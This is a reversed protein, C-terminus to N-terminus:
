PLLTAERIISSLLHESENRQDFLYKTKCDTLLFGILEHYDTPTMYQTASILCKSPLATSSILNAGFHVLMKILRLHIRYSGCCGLINTNEPILKPETTLLLQLINERITVVTLDHDYSDRVCTLVLNQEFTSVNHMLYEAAEYNAWEMARKLLTNQQDFRDIKTVGRKFVETFLQICIQFMHGTSNEICLSLLKHCNKVTFHKRLRYSGCEVLGKILLSFINDFNHQCCASLMCFFENPAIVACFITIQSLLEEPIPIEGLIFNLFCMIVSHVFIFEETYNEMMTITTLHRLMSIKTVYAKSSMNSCSTPSQNPRSVQLLGSFYEAAFYEAFTRHLFDFEKSSSSQIIGIQLIVSLTMRDCNTFMEDTHCGDAPFLLKLAHWIHFLKIDFLDKEDKAVGKIRQEIFQQYMQSMKFDFEPNRGATSSYKAVKKAYVEALLQCLLPIGAIENENRTLKTNVEDLCIGAYKQLLKFESNPDNKFWFQVLYNVQNQRNFPLIDYAIVDLSAELENRMHPRSTIYIRVNSFQLRILLFFEKMWGIKDSSLEDFGDFFIETTLLDAQVLKLLLEATENSSSIYKFVNLLATEFNSAQKLPASFDAPFKTLPIYAIIRQNCHKAMSRAVNALLFTKGMGPTDCICVSSVRSDESLQQQVFEEESIYVRDTKSGVKRLIDLAASSDELIYNNHEAEYNILHIPVKAVKKMHTWDESDELFIFRAKICSLQSTSSATFNPKVILSLQYRQTIGKFVFVDSCDSKLISEDLSIRNSLFRPVYFPPEPPASSSALVFTKQKTIFSENFLQEPLTDKFIQQVMEHKEVPFLKELNFLKGNFEIEVDQFGILNSSICVDPRGSILLNAAGSQNNQELTQLLIEYACTRGCLM